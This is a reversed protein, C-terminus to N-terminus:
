RLFWWVRSGWTALREWWGPVTFVFQPEVEM